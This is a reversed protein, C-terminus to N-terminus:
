ALSGGPSTTRRLPLRAPRTFKAPQQNTLFAQQDLWEILARVPIRVTNAERLVPFGERHSWEVVKDRTVQCIAATQDITYCAPQLDLAIAPKM